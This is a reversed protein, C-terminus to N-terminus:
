IKVLLFLLIVGVAALGIGFGIYFRLAFSGPSFKKYKIKMGSGKVFYIKRGNKTKSEAAYPICHLYLVTM